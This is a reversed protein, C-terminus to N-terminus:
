REVSLTGRYASAFKGTSARSLRVAANRVVGALRSATRGSTSLMVSAYSAGASCLDAGRQAESTSFPIVAITANAYTIRIAYRRLFAPGLSGAIAGHAPDHHADLQEPDGSLVPFLGRVSIDDLTFDGAVPDFIFLLPGIGNVSARVFLVGHEMTMSVDNAPHLALVAAFALAVFRSLM